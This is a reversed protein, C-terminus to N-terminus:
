CREQAGEPKVRPPGTALRRKDGLIQAEETDTWPQRAIGDLHTWFAM